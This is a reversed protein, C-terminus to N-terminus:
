IPILDHLTAIAPCPTWYPMLYYPSHYLVSRQMRLWLPVSWQGSLSFLPADIEHLFVNRRSALKAANFRTNSGCPPTLLHFEREPAADSLALALNYAYRGLGPFHDQVTRADFALPNTM